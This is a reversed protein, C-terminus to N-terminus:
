TVVEGSTTVYGWVRVGNVRRQQRERGLKVLARGVRNQDAQTWRGPEINIAHTLCEPVTVFARGAIYPVLLDEWADGQVRQEAEGAFLAAHEADPWWPRGEGFLHVAEAWLQDRDDGIADLDIAGVKVPWFRRNGTVDRLYTDGNTTGAFICSRPQQVNGRGYPPRYDDVPSSLYGKIRNTEARDFSDLEAIEVLWKGRLAGFRDKSALDIPTDSSWEAGFLRRLGSSKGAGQPGECVPMTDLKCGPRMIRAVAGIMFLESVLEHYTSPAAGFYRGFLSRVRPRGDWTLAELYDRVEHRERNRASTEVCARATGPEIRMPVHRSFWATLRVDDQDTWPGAGVTEPALDPDWPPRRSTRVEARFADYHLIGSWEPHHELVVIANGITSEIRDTSKSRTLGLMWPPANNRAVKRALEVIRDRNVAVLRAPSHAM